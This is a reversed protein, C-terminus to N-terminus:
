KQFALAVGKPYKRENISCFLDNSVAAMLKERNALAMTNVQVTFVWLSLVAFPTNRTVNSMVM